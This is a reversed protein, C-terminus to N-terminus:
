GTVAVTLVVVAATIEVISGFVDGTVGGVRHVVHRRWWVAVGLGVVVGALLQLATREADWGLPFGAIVVAAAVALLQGPLGATGAVLAGFGDPRASPVGHGAALLVGTRGVLEALILALVGVSAGRGTAAAVAAIKVLLLLVVAVVGFPGIDSKRMIELAREASTEASAGATSGLGDATDAFGDLHLGRTAVVLLVVALTAGLVAGMPGPVLLTTAFLLLGAAAGLCGGVYPLWVLARAALARDVLLAGTGPVRVATFLTVAAVLASVHRSAPRDLPTM